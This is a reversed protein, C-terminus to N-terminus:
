RRRQSATSTLCRIASRRAGVCALGVGGSRRRWTTITVANNYVANAAASGAVAVRRDLEARFVVRLTKADIPKGTRELVIFQCIKRANPWLWGAERRDRREKDAPVYAPM